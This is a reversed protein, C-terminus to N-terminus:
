DWDWGQGFLHSICGGRNQGPADCRLHEAWVLYLAASALLASAKRSCAPQSLLMDTMCVVVPGIASQV